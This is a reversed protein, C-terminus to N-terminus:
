KKFEVAINLSRQTIAIIDENDIVGDESGVVDAASRQEATWEGINLSMQTVAIIDENDIVGAESGVIDGKARGAATVTVTCTASQGGATATITATGAAVATVVGNAVSAVEPASSTWTVTKDTANEPAVTTTLTETGGVTLAAESKNLTVSSVAIVPNSVTVTCNATFSGDTTTVTITATGAAVATVAGNEVTAVTADSTTWTVAKNTADEPAVTATLTATEGGATLSLTEEDLTVGTVAVVPNSVTVTCTATFSGDTTTVTITATGAAVPTVVGDVVTAVETNSSEWTVAKNTAGEPAVTATLTATEGGATLSLTEEDLTVGTVAVVPNSVTVTCTATFSGDTTTVTITATGAAVPTVVGDVVTAVETNSSEWTVAKNTAGEPAVTATLTQAADGVTFTLANASLTVGTAPVPITESGLLVAASDNTGGAFFYIKDGAQARSGVNVTYSANGSAATQQNIYVIDAENISAPLANIESASKYVLITSEISEGDGLNSVRVGYTGDQNATVSGTLAAFASISLLSCGVAVCAVAKFLKKM